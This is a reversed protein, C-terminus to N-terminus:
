RTAPRISHNPKATQQLQVLLLQPHVIRAAAKHGAKTLKEEFAALEQPDQLVAAKVQAAFMLQEDNPKAALIREAAKLMAAASRPKSEADHPPM